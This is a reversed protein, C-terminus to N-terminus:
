RQGGRARAMLADLERRQARRAHWMSWEVYEANPMTAELQAVTM